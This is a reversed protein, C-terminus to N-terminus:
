MVSLSWLWVPMTAACLLSSLLISADVLQTGRKDARIVFAANIGVPCAALIVLVARAPPPVHFVFTALALVALPFVLLKGAVVMAAQGLRQLRLASLSAGLSLLACPLTAGTLLDLAHLAVGPVVVGGLNLALGTLLALVIPNTLTNGLSRAIRAPGSHGSAAVAYYMSFCALSHFAIVPYAFQLSGPGLTHVLVPLGVFVTNSYTTALATGAADERSKNLWSIAFFLGILPLYFASLLQWSVSAPIGTRYTSTLLLLPILLKATLETLGVHWGRHFWNLKGLLAGLGAIVFIPVFLTISL